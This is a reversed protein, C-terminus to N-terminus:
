ATLNLLEITNSVKYKEFLKSKINRVTHHSINLHWAIEKTSLGQKILTVLESERKTLHSHEASPKFEDIKQMSGEQRFIEVKVGSFKREASVDRFLVYYLNGSDPLNLVAKEDHIYFPQGSSKIFRYHFVCRAQFHLEPPISELHDHVYEFCNHLDQKDADHVFDFYTVMSRNLTLAKHGHGLIYPANASMYSIDPHMVPCTMIGWQPFLQQMSDFLAFVEERKTSGAVTVTEEIYSTVREVMRYLVAESVM